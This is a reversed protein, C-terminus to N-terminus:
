ASGPSASRPGIYQATALVGAIPGRARAEGLGHRAIGAAHDRAGDRRRGPDARTRAVLVSGGSGSSRSRASCLWTAPPWRWRASRWCAGATADRDAGAGADVDGPVRGGHDHVGSRLRAPQARPGAAPVAGAGPLVVGPRVLVRAPGVLGATFARSSSCRPRWCRRAAPPRWGASSSRSRRWSCRRRPSRCGPGCRGAM